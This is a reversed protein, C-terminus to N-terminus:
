ITRMTALPLSTVRLIETILYNIFSLLNFLPTQHIDAGSKIM